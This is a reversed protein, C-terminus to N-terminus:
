MHKWDCPGSVLEALLNLRVAVKDIVKSEVRQIGHLEDHRKLFLKHQCDRIINGLLDEGALVGDLEDRLVRLGTLQIDFTHAFLTVFCDLNRNLKV